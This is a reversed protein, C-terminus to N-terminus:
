TDSVRVQGGRRGTLVSWPIIQSEEGTERVVISESERDRDNMEGAQIRERGGDRERAQVSLSM